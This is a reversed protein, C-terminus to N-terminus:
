KTAERAQHCAALLDYTGEGILDEDTLTAAYYANAAAMVPRMRKVEGLLYDIDAPARAIFQAKRYSIHSPNPLRLVIIYQEGYGKVINPGDGGQEADEVRWEMGNVSQQRERIERLRDDTM